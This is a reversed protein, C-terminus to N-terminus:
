ISKWSKKSLIEYVTRTKINYKSALEKPQLNSERIEKVDSPKLKATGSRGKTDRDYSNDKLTGLFLHNPNVCPPNDCKHLVSLGDPILGNLAEWMARHAYIQEGHFTIKGYGTKSKSGVWIWCGSSEQFWDHLRELLSLDKRKIKVVKVKEPVIGKTLQRVRERTIGYDNGISQLSEGSKRRSRIVENRAAFDPIM